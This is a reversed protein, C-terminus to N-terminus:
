IICGMATLIEDAKSKQEATLEDYLKALMPKVDQLAKIRGEMAALHADLREVPTKAESV